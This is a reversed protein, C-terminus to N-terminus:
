QLQPASPPKPDSYATQREEDCSAKQLKCARAKDNLKKEVFEAIPKRNATCGIL